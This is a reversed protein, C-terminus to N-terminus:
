VNTLSCWTGRILCNKIFGKEKHTNGFAFFHPSVRNTFVYGIREGGVNNQGLCCLLQSINTSSGKSGATIILKLNNKHHLKKMIDKSVESRAEDLAKNTITELEGRSM